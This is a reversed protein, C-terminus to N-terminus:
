GQPLLRLGEMLDLWRNRASFMLRWRRTRAPRSPDYFGRRSFDVAIGEAAFLPEVAERIWRGATVGTTVPYDLVPERDPPFVEPSVALFVDKRKRARRTGRLEIQWLTEYPRLYSLLVERRWLGAQLRLRCPADLRVRWLWPHHRDPDPEDNQRSPTLAVHAWGKDVMAAAVEDIVDARVRRRLFYDDHMFLVLPTDMRRLCAILRAGDTMRRVRGDVGLAIRPCRIDLAAHSYVAQENNLWIRPRPEPWHREVLTFFPPWLDGYADVTHILIEYKM